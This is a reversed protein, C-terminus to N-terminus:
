RSTDTPIYRQLSLADCQLRVPGAARLLRAGYNARDYSLVKGQGIYTETPVSLTALFRMLMAKVRALESEPCSCDCCCIRAYCSKLILAISLTFEYSPDRHTSVKDRVVESM